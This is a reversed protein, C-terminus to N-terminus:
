VEIVKRRAKKLKELGSQQFKHQETSRQEEEKKALHECLAGLRIKPETVVTRLALEYKSAMAAVTTADFLDPNYVWRGIVDDEVEQMFVAVDFKSPVDLPFKAIELGPIKNTGRPTNQQVFLVQVLPSHTLNREPRLEEVLKDFPVDQHAYARLSVERVRKILEDFAPDGSLNTRLVLLNVFFGILSETEVANRNALDTGLVLDSQGTYHYLLADFGALMTMFLTSGHRRGLMRLDDVLSKPLVSEYVGGRFTQKVPRPRDTPLSLVAPAGELETKWYALQKELTKGQLWNRQWVAYDAYQIKLEPLDFPRNELACQYLVSLDNMMVGTSWGDSAIHHTNIFLIHDGESLKIVCARLLSDSALNFGKASEDQVIERAKEERRAAPIASLDMVPLDVTMEPAIKQVAHDNVEGYTTRLVEHRSILGNLASHMAAVQLPGSLRLARPVNYLWNGPDMQDLFWLRQQAFSLPIEHERDVRTIAPPPTGQQDRQLAEITKALGEVTPTEFLARLALEVRFADRVRAVVQTANLSHGGLEFFDDTVGISEVRLVDAWIAAVIEETPTRPATRNEDDELHSRDPIPLRKRDVKGNASLPMSDLLVFHAPVMYEPLKDALRRRLEAILTEAFRQRLPNTAYTALPGAVAPEGPFRVRGTSGIRGSSSKRRFLIDCAALNRHSWRVEVSFDGKLAWFDELEIDPLMQAELQGKLEGVTAPAQGSALTELAAVERVLRPNPVGSIGLVDSETKALLERLSSITSIHKWDLWQCDVEPTSEAVRLVVDYRFRTLENEAHGRKLHIEVNCIDPILQSLTSFFDPDVVLEGERKLNKQARQSIEKCAASDQGQYLQVSTHFTELLPLSRVDGIFVSGGPRLSKVAGELVHALYEINPFYQIVSNLIVVDFDKAAPEFEHAAAQQLHVQPLRLEPRHMQQELFDLARQSIDTGRFYSSKPAIRFLLLGTGCGIEWVREPRLALIREVTTETWVRMEDPPIPQGTYSSNWGAINFTADEVSGGKSYAEDFTMAWQSVQEADLTDNSESDQPGRYNPDVVIYAVLRKDGPEDERAIVVSQRVGNEQNLTAEIEGLEIRFGRIKVQHDLRGLYEINGDPLFRALDGTKYLRAGHDKSFPDSIFKESTLQPRNLYGRALQVGGIHLEGPVGIPVPRLREDLIYIQTNWVPRGIPVSSRGSGPACPWYTVDVSAETPGYLNHLECQLREFFRAELDAPLAEGSCIVRKLSTCREVQDTELFIRLMSPVFHMTTIRQRTILDVLYSPDKHGEPKAVVLCAGTMLPWFFEWVSVDFSYPTKQLIRDTSNLGYAHQMWLLRNVIGEHVNPVGKPKGTSGSTFIAYAQDKGGTICKPNSTPESALTHWDHDLCFVPASQQPIVELLHEQTLLVPPAADEIVMALRDRPHDPDLPVYGGGAKMIALLAVVMEVSREACIGVLIEPGVGLKRLHHALQNARANLERYSLQQSEFVLAPADPTKEVQQEILQHLCLNRDYEVQTRNWEVVVHQREAEGLIPLDTIAQDPNAVIAELLVRFHEQFREITAADFLDTSYEVLCVLGDRKETVFLGLDFKSTGNHVDITRLEIGPLRFDARPANQLAFWVQFIPTRTLDREPQMVEVLKEFPLDQHAYAGLATIRVRKVLERFSPNGSLDTRMVITNVFFGILEEIDAQNRGAIPSGVVLDPQGTYRFLLTQYAALLTMFLTASEGQSFSRLKDLLELPLKRAVTAGRYTQVPPRPRDAPLEFVDPAGQLQKTWYNLHQKLVDGSMWQRQWVGYDAYQIPLDSLPSPKGEVFVGYLPAIERIFQWLSWGDSVIHHMNLLLVHDEPALRLVTAGFLPGTELSFIQKAGHIALRQVETRQEAPPLHTLDVVPVNLKLEAETIQVPQNDRLEFRTRLVEHRRVIENLARELAEFHLKGSMGIAIPVNYLPNDPELQNLFWLRQQAFSLPMPATRPLRPIRHTHRGSVALAEEVKPALEAITPTEFMIRLPLDAGASQRLRSIVQTALLSHGGLAFFNDFVGVTDLRLVQKWIAAIQEEAPTRPAVYKEGSGVKADPAPLAKRNIKGNPTLPFSDLLVFHGPVMYEPLRDGLWKRLDPVLNALMRSRLPNTAYSELPRPARAEGPFKIAANESGKKRFLVDMTGDEPNASWRIEATYPLERELAWIEEPEVSQEAASALMRKVEGANAPCRDSNLTGLAAAEGAIRANPVGTVGLLAPADNKLAERLAAITLSQKKWDLWKCEAAQAAEGVHLVIDYRFRTLENHMRGRKLQIEIRSIQPLERQLASFFGADVLLEGEQRMQQQVQARLDIISTSDAAKHLEVSTHFAELLAFNRIDGLFMAGGPRLCEVAGKIVSLLYNLNPFYQAVSNLVIADFKGESAAGAFDEAPKHDLSIIPLHRMEPHRVADRLRDIAHASVDTGRFYKCHSAVRFLLLGMGCGIEWIREAKLALIRQVTTDVWVRMDERPIPEGTYSSVWGAINFTNNGAKNQRYTEDFTTAWLSVQEAGLALAEEENASGKYEPDAVMYAVLRKDGPEDERALVLCQQVGAHKSLAAEIEGLEIRFGRLKVQHDLRGLYELEGNVLWRCLDGTKYMRPSNAGGFPNPVFREATLDPRGFYGRALGTGALHLEGPVGIPQPNGVRDLVYAQTGPLPKGITVREGERTLTYTSYTTDETPGYLNYVKAVSTSDYIEDVLTQVLAEGALNITKVSEPVAQARLLEMIASPVTNILTVENRAEATPLFLANQVIVVKGGTSLPVFMEFISLDFCVSTSFLVAKLEDPRFIKQAWQVFASASRHELAVGKPRGTSGSTFLVYALNEQKTRVAPAEQSERGIQEWDSDLRVAKGAFGPLENVLSQQTLVLPTKADELINAIRDKPYVPDLPVYASGSKLIGLIGVILDLKRECFIGILVDPAAGHKLLYNAIQNSRRDLDRYTITAEACVLAIADPTQEAQRAFFDHLRLDTTYEAPQDNFEVLVRHREASTLVPLDAIQKEPHAAVNELLHQFHGIFREITGHDFLDTDYEVRLLLGQDTEFAFWSMDFLSTSPHIPERQVTLGSASFITKPLNQLGFLVQFIPNYSLSREPQLEEVLKEFPIEQHAYGDLATQKVRALLERFTPDGSLDTRLALTNIFFGILPEIESYNRGAVSSGVVIDEQGSYRSLLLQFAAVLTMFLTAGESQSLARLRTILEQPIVHTRVAGRHMQVAPRPRDTPLELVPPAGALQKKWYATQSDLLEGQMWERQWVAFDAYQVALEPLPSPQNQSFAAYLAAMEAALVSGSWGDGAIHHLIVVLLHEDEALRLLSFRLLPGKALDFPKSAEQKAFCQIEAERKEAPSGERVEVRLPLHLSPAIIQVAQGDHTGFTTRLTEHRRVIENITRQMADVNLPGKLRYMASINYLPNGPELQDIFWLRQQAFSLPLHHRDALRPIFAPKLNGDSKQEAEIRKAFEAVTPSEFMARLPLEVGLLQRMRAVVQTAVLSHGGLMFFDDYVGVRDIHLLQAWTAAVMEEVATRAPIFERNSKRSSRSEHEIARSISEIDNLESAIRALRLNETSIQSNSYKPQLNTETATESAATSVQMLRLQAAYEAPLNYLTHGAHEERYSSGIGDLFDLAPLNKKTRVFKVQVRQLGRDLAAQGLQSLMNHEVKRGLARCSLLLTDVILMSDQASFLIVGVLGYDGFRDRLNVVWCEGGREIFHAIESESRRITTFNFQNTRETLQSVRPLDTEQMSHIDLKLELGALFDDLTAAQKRIGEREANQRYMETRKADESTTKWHDFAWVGRLFAPIEEADQPLLLTLVEPCQAEVEACEIPNDDVFVFSDLGLQLEGALERLNQSKSNWNVRRAAIDRDRLLMGSNQSFVAQVDDESNKSCLCVLMGAKIQDVMFAQLARRPADVSVGTPGEEGCVGKWLTNDCDLVIVKRPSSRLSFIRRALMTGLAAFFAPTYPIHGVKDAYEDEYNEVPYFAALQSSTILHVGALAALEAALNQEVQVFFESWDPDASVQREPPCLCVLMPVSLSPAIAQLTQVLERVNREIKKKKASADSLNEDFRQWDSLRLLIVNAGDTNRRILSAPDLLQQFVQNYPAFSVSSRLGLEKMWFLLSPEVPEATFTSTIALTQQHERKRAREAQGVLLQPLAFDSVSRAPDDALATLIGVFGELLSDVSERNFLETKFECDLQLGGAREVAMFRLDLLATDTKLEVLEATFSDGSFKTEAFNQLLLAVNYLSNTETISSSGAATAIKLFPCDQHAFGDMVVQKERKLLELAPEDASISNRLPLFNLFCGIVRDSGALTRNSAVTGVVLDTQSTWRHLLIRLAGLMVTFLTTGTTQSLSKLRELVAPSVFIGSSKGIHESKKPRPHDTPLTTIPPAGELHSRWYEVEQELRTGRMQERQREAYQPYQFPPEPLTIAKGALLAGYIESLEDFFITGTQGDAIVHHMVAVLIHDDDSLQLLLVRLPLDASLEFRQQMARLAISLAASERADPAISRLDETQLEVRGKPDIRQVPEDAGPEIRARLVDHRRCIEDLARQLIDSCFAGRVRFVRSQHYLHGVPDIQHLLWYMFQVFSLPAKDTASSLAESSLSAVEQEPARLEEAVAALHAVTPDEFFAILPIEVNLLAQLRSIVELAKLSDGGLEFFNDSLAINERHLVENWVQAVIATVKGITPADSGNSPAQMPTRLEDVVASLHAITPEEFFAILPLEVKLLAHLRSIVELAKLSDGGLDFFNENLGINDRQLVEAWVKAVAEAVSHTNM